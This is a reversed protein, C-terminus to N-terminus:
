IKVKSSSKTIKKWKVIGDFYWVINIFGNVVFTLAYNTISQMAFIWLLIYVIASIIGAVFKWVTRRFTFYYELLIIAFSIANLIVLETNVTSLIFYLAVGLMITCAFSLTIEKTKIKNIELKDEKTHKKWQLMAIFNIAISAISTALEGFYFEKINFYIYIAYSIIIWVFSIWKSNANFVLYVVFTICSSWAVWGDVSNIVIACVTYAVVSFLLLIKQFLTFNNFTFKMRIKM